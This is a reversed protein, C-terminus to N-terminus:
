QVTNCIKKNSHILIIESNVGLGKIDANVFGCIIFVRSVRSM